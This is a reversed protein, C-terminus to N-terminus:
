HCRSFDIDPSASPNILVPRFPKIRPFNRFPPMELEVRGLKRRYFDLGTKVPSRRFFREIVPPLGNRWTKEVRDFPASGNGMHLTELRPGLRERQKKISALM